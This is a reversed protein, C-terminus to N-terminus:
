ISDRMPWKTVSMRDKVNYNNAHSHADVDGNKLKSGTFKGALQSIPVLHWFASQEFTVYISQYKYLASSWLEALPGWKWMLRDSHPGYFECLAFVTDLDNVMNLETHDSLVSVSRNGETKEHVSYKVHIFGWCVAPYHVPQTHLPIHNPYLEMFQQNGFSIQQRFLLDISPSVVLVNSRIGAFYNKSEYKEMGIQIAPWYDFHKSIHWVKYKDADHVWTDPSPTLLRYKILTSLYDLYFIRPSQSLFGRTAKATNIKLPTRTGILTYNLSSCQSLIVTNHVFQVYGEPPLTRIHGNRPDFREALKVCGEDTLKKPLSPDSKIPTEGYKKRIAEVIKFPNESQFPNISSQALKEFVLNANEAFSANMNAEDDHNELNSRTSTSRSDMLDLVDQQDKSLKHQPREFLEGLTVKRRPTSENDPDDVIISQWDSLAQNLLWRKAFTQEVQKNNTFSEGLV